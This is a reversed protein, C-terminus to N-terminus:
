DLLEYSINVDVDTADIDTSTLALRRYDMRQAAGNEQLYGGRNQYIANACALNAFLNSGNSRKVELATVAGVARNIFTSNVLVVNNPLVNRSSSLLYTDGAGGNYANISFARISGTKKPQLHEFGGDSLLADYYNTSLDKLQYGVGEGISLACLCGLKNLKVNKLYVSDGAQLSGDGSLLFVFGQAPHGSNPVVFSSSFTLWQDEQTIDFLGSFTSSSLNDRVIIGTFNGTNSAPNYIDFSIRVLDSYNNALVANRQFSNTLDFDLQYRITDNEGGISDNNGTISAGDGNVFFGDVGSSFDFNSFPESEAWKDKNNAALWAQIGQSSIAVAEASTLGRNFFTYERVIGESDLNTDLAGSATQGGLIWINSTRTLVMSSFTYGFLQQEGNVWASVTLNEPDVTVVLVSDIGFGPLM